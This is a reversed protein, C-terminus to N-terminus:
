SVQWAWGKSRVCADFIRQRSAIGVFANMALASSGGPEARMICDNSEVEFQAQTAGPKNWVVTACSSMALACAILGALFRM